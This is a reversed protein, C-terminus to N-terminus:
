ISSLNTLKLEGNLKAWYIKECSDVVGDAKAMKQLLVALLSKKDQSMDSFIKKVNEESIDEVKAFDEPGVNLSERVNNMFLEEASDIVNNALMM